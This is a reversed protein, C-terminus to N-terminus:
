CLKEAELFSKVFVAALPPCIANGYGRLRVVRKPLRAALPLVGSEIRRAKGDACQIIDFDGWAALVAQGTGLPAPREQGDDGSERGWEELGQGNTHGLRGHVGADLGAVGHPSERGHQGGRQQRKPRADRGDADALWRPLPRPGEPGLRRAGGGAEPRADSPHEGRRPRGAGQAHAVWFLRQRVHPAGVGAACLDAAGVAYGMRELDLRVRALWIRGLKSAVQEGFVVPPRFKAILGLM